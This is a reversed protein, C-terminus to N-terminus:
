VQAVDRLPQCCGCTNFNSSVRTSVHKLSVLVQRQERARGSQVRRPYTFVPGDQPCPMRCVRRVETLRFNGTSGDDVQHGHEVEEEADADDGVLSYGAPAHEPRAPTVTRGNYSQM